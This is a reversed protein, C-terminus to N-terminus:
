PVVAAHTLEAAAPLPVGLELQETDERRLPRRLMRGRTPLSTPRHHQRLQHTRGLGTNVAETPSEQAASKCVHDGHRPRLPLRLAQVSAGMAGLLKTGLEPAVDIM